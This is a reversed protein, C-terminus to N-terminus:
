PRPRGHPKSQCPLKGEPSGPVPPPLLSPAHDQRVDRLQRAASIAWKRQDAWIVVTTRGTFIELESGGERRTAKAGRFDFLGHPDRHHSFSGPWRYCTSWNQVSLPLSCGGEALFGSPLECRGYGFDPGPGMGTEWDEGSIGTLQLQAVPNGAYYIPFADFRRIERLKAERADESHTPTHNSGCGSLILVCLIGQCAIYAVRRLSSNTLRM